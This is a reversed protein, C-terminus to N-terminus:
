VISSNYKFLYVIWNIVLNIRRIEVNGLRRQDLMIEVLFKLKLDRKSCKKLFEEFFKKKSIKIIM